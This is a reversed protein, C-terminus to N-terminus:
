PTPRPPRAARCIYRPQQTPNATKKKNNHSSFLRVESAFFTDSRMRARFRSFAEVRALGGGAVGKEGQELRTQCWAERRTGDRAVKVGDSARRATANGVGLSFLGQVRAAGRKVVAAAKGNPRSSTWHHTTTSGHPHHPRLVPAAALSAAVLGSWGTACRPGPPPTTPRGRGEKGGVERWPQSWHISDISEPWTACRRGAHPRAMPARVVGLFVFGVLSFGIAGERTPSDCFRGRPPVARGCGGDGGTALCLFM